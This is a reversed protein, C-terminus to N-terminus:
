IKYVRRTIKDNRECNIKREPFYEKFKKMYFNIKLSPVFFVQSFEYISLASLVKEVRKEKKPLFGYFLFQDNFGSVSMAATISSVGPIPIIEIQNEVCKNILIEQILYYHHEQM